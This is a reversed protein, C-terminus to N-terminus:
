ALILNINKNDRIIELIIEYITPGKQKEAAELEKQVNAFNSPHCRKLKEKLYRVTESYGLDERSKDSSEWILEIPEEYEFKGFGGRLVDNLADLNRGFGSFNDTLVKQVEIYFEELNSFTSGDIIFTRM